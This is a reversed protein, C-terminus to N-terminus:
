IMEVDVVQHTQVIIYVCVCFSVVFATALFVVEWKRHTHAHPPRLVSSVTLHLVKM